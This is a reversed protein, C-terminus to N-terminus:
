KPPSAFSFPATVRVDVPQGQRLPPAFVWQTVAAAAAWGFEPASASIIRPVRVRGERDIVVEIMASGAPGTEKLAAPYDPAVRWLPTLRGDLGGAGGIGTPSRLALVLRGVPDATADASPPTFAQTVRMRPEYATGNNLAPKFFWAEVAAVLAAGFQPASASVLAVDRVQGRLGITFEVVAEGAIGALLPELPYVPEYIIEPSPPGGELSALPKGNAATIANAALLESRKEGFMYFEVGSVIKDTRPLSGQRAPEAKMRAFVALAPAVLAAHTASLVRPAGLTGDEAVEYDFRVLGPLKRPALEDPYVADPMFTVKAPKRGLVRPSVPPTLPRESQKPQKLRFIIPVELETALAVGAELAPTFEWARLCVLAAERLRPDTASMVRLDGLQGDAGVIFRIIVQGEIQAKLADAPYTPSLWKRVTASSEVPLDAPAPNGTVPLPAAASLVLGTGLLSFWLCLFKVHGARHHAITFLGSRQRM